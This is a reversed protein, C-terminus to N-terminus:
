TAGITKDFSTRFVRLNPCSNMTNILADIVDDDITSESLDFTLQTLNEKKEFMKIRQAIEKSDNYRGMDIYFGIELKSEGM